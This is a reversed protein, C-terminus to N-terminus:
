ELAIRARNNELTSKGIGKVDALEDVSIFPRYAERYRMIEQARADGVGKLASAMTAADATNINVAAVTPSPAPDQANAPSVSGPWVGVLLSLVMAFAVAAPLRRASFFRGAALAFRTYSDLLHTNSM